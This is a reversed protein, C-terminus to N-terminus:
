DTTISLSQESNVWLNTTEAGLNDLRMSAFDPVVYRAGIEKLAPANATQQIGVCLMGAAVGAKVGSIADEFVICQEPTKNLRQAALLYCQPDPKGKKVDDATVIASFLGDLGLQDIVSGVKRPEASTVLATQIHQQQLAQLFATVGNVETYALENEYRALEDLVGKCEEVGLHPFVKALTYIAQTGYIHQAFITETLQVQHKRALDEWFVTVSHHTDIIVGDMDFLLASYM